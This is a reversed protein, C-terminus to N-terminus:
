FRHRLTLGLVAAREYDVEGIVDGSANELRLQGNFEMGMLLNVHTMPWPSYDVSFLVPISSDQGYGGSLGNNDALAFRVKEYRGTFGLSWNKDLSYSLIFGPGQSAALGRGTALNLRQTIDWDIVVIPFANTSDGPESFWGFGPGLVLNDSLRWSIGALLGESRGDALDADAETYSRISPILIVQSSKGASFRIPVSFRYDRIRDWPALGDLRSSESFKYSSEGAGISLSVSTNRNWAYGISPQVFWRTVSFSGKEDRLDTSFQQVVGGAIGYVWPGFQQQDGQEAAFMGQSTLGALLLTLRRFM